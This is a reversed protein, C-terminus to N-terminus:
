APLGPLYLKAPLAYKRSTGKPLATATAPGDGIDFTMDGLYLKGNM